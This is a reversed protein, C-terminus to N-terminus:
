YVFTLHFLICDVIRGGQINGKQGINLQVFKGFRSSNNNYVTKANGFAEMIPSCFFFFFVWSLLSLCDPDMYNVVTRVSPLISLIQFCLARCCNHKNISPGSRGTSASIPKYHTDMKLPLVRLQDHPCLISGPTLSAM